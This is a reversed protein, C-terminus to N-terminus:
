NGPPESPLSDAQLAPFRPEVGPNPLAVPSPCPLGSWYEQRSFGMSLSAPHTVTWTTEFLRACSLSWCKWKWIGDLAMPNSPIPSIQSIIVFCISSSWIQQSEVKEWAGLYKACKIKHVRQLLWTFTYCGGGSASCCLPQSVCPLDYFCSLASGPGLDASDWLGREDERSVFFWSSRTILAGDDRAKWFKTPLLVHHACWGTM